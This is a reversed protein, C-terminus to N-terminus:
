DEFELGFRERTIQRALDPGVSQRQAFCYVGGGKEFPVYYHCVTVASLSEAIFAYSFSHYRM